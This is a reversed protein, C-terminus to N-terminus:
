GGSIHPTVKNEILAKRAAVIARVLGAADIGTTRAENAAFVANVVPKIVLDPPGTCIASLVYVWAALGNASNVDHKQCWLRIATGAYAGSNWSGPVADIDNGRIDLFIAIKHKYVGGGDLHDTRRLLQTDRESSFAEHVLPMRDVFAAITALTERPIVGIVKSLDVVM